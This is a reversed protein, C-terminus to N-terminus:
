RKLLGLLSTRNQALRQELARVENQADRHNPDLELVRRFLRLAEQERHLMREVRALYFTADISNKTRAIAGLLVRRTQEAVLTKNPAACFQAWALLARYETRTPDLEVARKFEEVAIRHQGTGLALEGRCCAGYATDGSAPKAPAPPAAATPAAAPPAPRPALTVIPRRSTEPPPTSTRAIAPPSTGAPRREPECVGFCVLAYVLARIAQRELEPHSTEIESLECGRQLADIVPTGDAAIGFPHLEAVTGSSLRFRTGFSALAASLRAESMRNRAGHHVVARTDLVVDRAVPLTIRDDVVYAGREIAFTRAARHGIVLRRLRMAADGDLRAHEALVDIEDRGRQAAVRESLEIVQRAPVIGAAMAIRPAADAVLPSTAGVIAGREFAIAFCESGLRLTLQGTLDRRWLTAITAGWPRDSVDGRALEM